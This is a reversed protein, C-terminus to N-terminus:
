APATPNYRYGLGYLTDIQEFEVDVVRFKNRLRRVHSDITREDVQTENDYVATRLESRSVVRGVAAVLKSLLLFETVTLRVEHGKWSCFHGEADLALPGIRELAPHDAAPMRRRAAERRVVARIRAVFLAISFPKSIYDDAGSRLAFLEDVEADKSTLFIVPVDSTQRLEALVEAGDMRPMKIDLVILDPAGDRIKELAEIGDTALTVVFGEQHLVLSLSSLLGRDDDVLLIHLGLAADRGDDPVPATTANPTTANAAIIAAGNAAAISDPM